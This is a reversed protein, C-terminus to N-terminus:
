TPWGGAKEAAAEVPKCTMDFLGVGTTSDCEGRCSCTAPPGGFCASAALVEATTFYRKGSRTSQDTCGDACYYDGAKVADWQDRSMWGPGRGVSEVKGGCSPCRLKM